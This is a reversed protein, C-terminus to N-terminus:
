YCCAFLERRQPRNPLPSPHLIYLRWTRSGALSREVPRGQSVPLWTSFGEWSASLEM